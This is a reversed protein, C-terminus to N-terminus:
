EKGGAIAAVAFGSRKLSALFATIANETRMEWSKDLSSISAACWMEKAAATALSIAAKKSLKHKM